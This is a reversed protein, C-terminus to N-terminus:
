LIKPLWRELFEIRNLVKAGMDLKYQMYPHGLNWFSFNNTQLYQALLVMQLKGWNNYQKEKISFGSLSTYTSGIIYGVEGAVIENTINSKLKCSILKFNIKSDYTHLRKLLELYEGTIWNNKHHIDILELVSQFEQDIPYLSM